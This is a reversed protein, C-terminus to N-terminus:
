RLCLVSCLSPVTHADTVLAVFRDLRVQAGFVWTDRKNWMPKYDPAGSSGDLPNGLMLQVTCQLVGETLVSPHLWKCFISGWFPLLCPCLSFPCCDWLKAVTCTFTSPPLAISSSQVPAHSNLISQVGLTSRADGGGGFARVSVQPVFQNM